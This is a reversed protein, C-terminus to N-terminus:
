TVTRLAPGGIASPAATRSANRDTSGVRSAAATFGIDSTTALGHSLGPELEDSGAGAQQGGPACGADLRHAASFL